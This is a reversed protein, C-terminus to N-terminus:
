KNRYAYPLAIASLSFVGLVFTFLILRFTFRERPYVYIAKVFWLNFINDDANKDLVEKLATKDIIETNRAYLKKLSDESVHRWEFTKMRKLFYPIGKGLQYIANLKPDNYYRVADLKHYFYQPLDYRYNTMHVYYTYGVLVGVMQFLIGISVLISCIYKIYRNLFNFSEALFLLCFPIIVLLYRPGWVPDGAFFRVNAYFIIYSTSLLFITIAETKFKKYFFPFLFVSLLLIPNFIFISKGPSLLLGRLGNLFPKLSVMEFYANAWWSFNAWTISLKFFLFIIIPMLIFAPYIFVKKVDAKTQILLFIWAPLTLVFTYRTIFGLIMMMLSIYFYRYLKLKQFKLLFYFTALAFFGEQVADHMSKSYVWVMTSFALIFTMTFSIKKSYNLLLLLNFFFLCLGAAFFANLFTSFFHGGHLIGPGLWNGLAYLPIFGFVQGWHMNPFQSLRILDQEHYGTYRFGEQFDPPSKIVLSQAQKYRVWGDLCDFDGAATLLFCSLLFLFLILNRLM